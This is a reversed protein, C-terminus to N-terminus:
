LCGNQGAPSYLWNQRDLATCDDDCIVVCEQSYARHWGCDCGNIPMSTLPIRGYYKCSTLYFVGLLLIAVIGFWRITDSNYMTKM